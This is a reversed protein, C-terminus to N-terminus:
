RKQKDQPFKQYLIRKYKYMIYIEKNQSWKHWPVQYEESTEVGKETLLSPQTNDARKAM